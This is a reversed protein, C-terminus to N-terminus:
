TIVGLGHFDMGSYGGPGGVEGDGAFEPEGRVLDVGVLLRVGGLGGEGGWLAARGELFRGTGVLEEHSEVGRAPKEVGGHGGAVGPLDERSGTQEELALGLDVTADVRKDVLAAEAVGVEAVLEEGLALLKTLLVEFSVELLLGGDAEEARVGLQEALPVFM